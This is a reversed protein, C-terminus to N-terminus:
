FYIMCICMSCQMNLINLIGLHILNHRQLDKLNVFAKGCEQCQHPRQGTHSRRHVTLAWKLKFRKGCQDCMHVKEGLIVLLTKVYCFLTTQIM